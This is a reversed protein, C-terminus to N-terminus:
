IRRSSRRTPTTPPPPEQSKLLDDDTLFDVHFGKESYYYWGLVVISADGMSTNQVAQKPFKDALKKLEEAEWLVVQERFAAWPSTEDAAFIMIKKFEEASTWKDGSKAQAIHNGTEIVTALPLVLTTGKKIELKIKDNVSEFDWKNNGATEKVPVQLWVCLLSTDILLVKRM